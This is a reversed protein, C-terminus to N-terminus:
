GLCNNELMANYLTQLYCPFVAAAHVFAKSFLPAGLTCLVIHVRVPPTTQGSCLTCAEAAQVNGLM